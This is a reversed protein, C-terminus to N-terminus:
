QRRPSRHESGGVGGMAEVANLHIILCGHDEISLTDGPDLITTTGPRRSPPRARSRTAPASTMASISASNELSDGRLM